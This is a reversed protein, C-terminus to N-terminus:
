VEKNIIKDLFLRRGNKCSYDGCDFPCTSPFLNEEPSCVGDGCFSKCQNLECNINQSYFDIAWSMHSYEDFYTGWKPNICFGGIYFPLYPSLKTNEDLNVLFKISVKNNTYVKASTYPTWIKDINSVVSRCFHIAVIFSLASM